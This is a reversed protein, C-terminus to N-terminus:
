DEKHIGMEKEGALMDRSDSHQDLIGALEGECCVCYVQWSKGETRYAYPRSQGHQRAEERSYWVSQTEWYKVALERKEMDFENVHENTERDFYKYDDDHYLERDVEETHYIWRATQFLFIPDRTCEHFAMANRHM